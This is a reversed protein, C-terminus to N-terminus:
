GTSTTSGRTPERKRVAYVLGAGVAFCVVVGAVGALGKSLREDEVGAVEYDALPSGAVASEAEREAIGTDEAVKNLGDPASSAYYSVVGGLLLAVLLGTMVFIRTRV